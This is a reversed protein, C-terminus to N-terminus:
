WSVVVIGNAGAGGPKQIWSSTSNDKSAGGGGGGTGIGLGSEGISASGGGSGGYGVINAGGNGGIGYGSSITTQTYTGASGKMATARDGSAGGVGTGGSCGSGSGGSGGNSTIYAGFSSTGGSSGRSGCGSQGSGGAGGAGGAGVTVPIQEGATLGSVTQLFKVQAAGGGAGGYSVGAGGGGGGGGVILAVQVETVGAPVTFTGSATFTQTRSGQAGGDAWTTRCDDAICLGTGKVYGAVDLMQTPAGTGIGVNGLLVILGNDAGATNLLLGGEKAEPGIGTTLPANADAGPPAVSPESFAAFTQVGASLLLVGLVLAAQSLLRRPNM